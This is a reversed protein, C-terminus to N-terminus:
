QSGFLENIWGLVLQNVANWFAFGFWGPSTYGVPRRWYHPSQLPNVCSLLRQQSDYYDNVHYTWTAVHHEDGQTGGCQVLRVPFVATPTRPPNGLRVLAWQMGTGGERWLIAASGAHSALLYGPADTSVEALHYSYGDDPIFVRVPVMGAIAARGLKGNSIPELLVVFKGRHRPQPQIGMVAPYNKFAEEDSAPNFLMGEIGLVDYRYRHWGTDNRVFVIDTPRRFPMGVQAQRHQRALFDQAADVFTNFTAAPIVLPDGPKVKRLSM